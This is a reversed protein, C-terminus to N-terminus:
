LGQDHHKARRIATSRATGLRCNQALRLDGGQLGIKLGALVLPGARGGRRRHLSVGQPINSCRPLGVNKVGRLALHRFAGM